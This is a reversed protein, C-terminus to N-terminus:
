RGVTSHNEVNGKNQIAKCKGETTGDGAITIQWEPIVKARRPSRKAYPYATTHRIGAQQEISFPLYRYYVTPPALEAV